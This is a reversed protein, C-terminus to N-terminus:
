REPPPLSANFGPIKRVWYVVASHDLQNQFDTNEGKFIVVFISFVLVGWVSGRVM